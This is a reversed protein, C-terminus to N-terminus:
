KLSTWAAIGSAYYDNIQKKDTLRFQKGQSIMLLIDPLGHRDVMMMFAEYLNRISNGELYFMKEKKSNVAARIWGVNIAKERIDDPDSDDLPETIGFKKPNEIVSNTHDFEDDHYDGDYAVIITSSPKIWYGIYAKSSSEFLNFLKM